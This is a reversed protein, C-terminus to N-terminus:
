GFHKDAVYGGKIYMVVLLLKFFIFNSIRDICVLIYSVYVVNSICVYM